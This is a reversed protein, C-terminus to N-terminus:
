APKRSISVETQKSRDDLVHARWEGPSRGGQSFIWEEATAPAIELKYALYEVCLCFAEYNDSTNRDSVTDTRRPVHATTLDVIPGGSRNFLLNVSLSTWQDMIYGDHKPDIFFILKTFYAPGIGCRPNKKRFNRLAAYACKRSMERSKLQDIIPTLQEWIVPSLLLKGHNRKMAGWALTALATVEPKLEPKESFELLEKRDIRARPLREILQPSAGVYKAWDTPASGALWGCGKGRIEALKNFHDENLTIDDPLLM